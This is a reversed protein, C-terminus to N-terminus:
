YKEIVKDEPRQFDFKEQVKESEVPKIEKSEEDHHNARRAKALLFYTGLAIAGFFLFQHTWSSTPTAQENLWEHVALWAQTSYQKIRQSSSSDALKQDQPGILHRSTYILENSPQLLKDKEDAKQAGETDNVDVNTDLTTINDEGDVEEDSVDNAANARTSASRRRTNKSKRPTQEVPVAFKEGLLAILAEKRIPATHRDKITEVKDESGLAQTLVNHCHGVLTPYFRYLLEVLFSDKCQLCFAVSAAVTFDLSCSKNQPGFWTADGLRAALVAFIYSIELTADELTYIGYSAANQQIIDEYQARVFWRVGWFTDKAVNFTPLDALIFQVAAHLKHTYVRMADITAAEPPTMYADIDYLNAKIYPIINQVPVIAHNHHLIPLTTSNERHQADMGNIWYKNDVFSIPVKQTTVEISENDDNTTTTITSILEVNPNLTISQFTSEVQKLYLLAELCAPQATPLDYIPPTKVLTFM